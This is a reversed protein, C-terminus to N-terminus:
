ENSEFRIEYVETCSDRTTLWRRETSTCRRMGAFMTRRGLWDVRRVDRVMSGGVRRLNAKVISKRRSSDALAWEVDTVPQAFARAVAQFVDGCTVPLGAAGRVDITWPCDDCVIRIASAGTATAPDDRNAWQRSVRMHSEPYRVDFIVPPPRMGLLPHLAGGDSKKKDSRLL